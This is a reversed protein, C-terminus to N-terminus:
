NRVRIKKRLFAFYVIVGLAVVAMIAVTGTSIFVNEGSGSVFSLAPTGIQGQDPLLQSFTHIGAFELAYLTFIGIVALIEINGFTSKAFFPRDNAM